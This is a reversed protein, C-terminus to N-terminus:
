RWDFKSIKSITKFSSITKHSFFLRCALFEKYLCKRSFSIKSYCLTIKRWFICFQSPSDTNLQFHMLNFHVTTHPLYDCNYTDCLHLANKFELKSSATISLIDFKWLIAGFKMNLHYTCVKSVVETSTVHTVRSQNKLCVAEVKYIEHCLCTRFTSKLKEVQSGYIYFLTLISNCSIKVEPVFVAWQISSGFGLKM